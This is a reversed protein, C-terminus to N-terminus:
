LTEALWDAMLPRAPIRRTFRRCMSVLREDTTRRGVGRTGLHM